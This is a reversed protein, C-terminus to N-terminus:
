PTPPFGDRDLQSAALENVHVARFGLEAAFTLEYASDGVYVRDPEDEAIENMDLCRQLGRRFVAVDTKPGALDERGIAIRMRERLAPFRDVFARVAESSNSTLVSFCRSRALRDTVAAIPDAITAARVEADRVLEWRAPDGRWLEEISAVGLTARLLAWNVELRAITGDFDLIPAPGLM